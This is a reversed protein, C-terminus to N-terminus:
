HVLVAGPAFARARFAGMRAVRGFRRCGWEVYSCGGRSRLVPCSMVGTPAIGSSDAGREIYSWRGRPSPGCSKVASRAVRGFLCGGKSTPAGAGPAFPDPVLNG